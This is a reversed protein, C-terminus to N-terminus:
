CGIRDEKSQFVMRIVCKMTRCPNKKTYIPRNILQVKQKMSM